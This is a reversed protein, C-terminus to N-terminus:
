TSSDDVFIPTDNLPKCSVRLLTSCISTFNPIVPSGLIQDHVHSYKNALGHLTFVIFFKSQQELEQAPPIIEIFEHLLTHMKGLYDAMPDQNRPAVVNFLNHCVGYHCKLIM